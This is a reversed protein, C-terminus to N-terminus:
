LIEADFVDLRVSNSASAVSWQASVAVTIAATTDVTTSALKGPKATATGEVGICTLGAAVMTGSAGITRIVVDAEIYALDNNAVDLAGTALITTSGFKLRVNLTDTSNTSTAIAQARVRIVQGVQLSGAPIVFTKDFNTETVTNTVAASAASSSLVVGGIRKTLTGAADEALLLQGPDADSTPAFVLNGNAWTSKLKTVPM